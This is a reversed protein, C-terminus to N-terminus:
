LARLSVTALLGANRSAQARPWCQMTGASAKQSGSQRLPLFMQVRM